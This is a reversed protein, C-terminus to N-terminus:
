GVIATSFCLDVDDASIPTIADISAKLIKGQKASLAHSGSTSTLSDDVIVQASELNGVRDNVVKFMSASVVKLDAPITKDTLQSTGHLIDDTTLNKNGESGSIKWYRSDAQTQTMKSSALSYASDAKSQAVGADLVGEQAKQYAVSVAKASAATTSSSLSVSDSIPRHSSIKKSLETDVYSQDAKKNLRSVITDSYDENEGLFDSIEKLTDLAEPADGIIKNIQSTVYSETAIKNNNNYLYGDSAIKFVDTTVNSASTAGFKTQSILFIDSDDGEPIGFTFINQTSLPSNETVISAEEIQTITRQIYNDPLEYDRDYLQQVSSDIDNIVDYLSSNDKGEVYRDPLFVEGGEHNHEQLAYHSPLYGGLKDSDKARKNANFYIANNSSIASNAETAVNQCATSISSMIESAEMGGGFKTVSPYEAEMDEWPIKVTTKRNNYLRSDNGECATGATEGFKVGGRVTASAVPITYNLTWTSAAEYKSLREDTLDNTSLVKDGDKTVKLDLQGKILRSFETLGAKDLYEKAM